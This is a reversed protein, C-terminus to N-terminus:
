KKIGKAELKEDIVKRMEQLFEDKTKNRQDVFQDEVYFTPTFDIDAKESIKADFDIKKQVENSIMDSRFKELDGKGDSVTMFYEEFQPQRTTADSYFWDNQNSFLIDKYEKWYGQLHAANAAAAAATGNQHYSMINTRFVAAVKGDYEEILDNIHPNMPACADCQYDGYEYIKVPADPNGDILDGINGNNEDPAIVTATDYQDYDIKGSNAQWISIGLLGGFGLVLVGLIAWTKKDM